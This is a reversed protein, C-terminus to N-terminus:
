ASHTGVLRRRSHGFLAEPSRAEECDHRLTSSSAWHIWQCRREISSATCRAANGCVM